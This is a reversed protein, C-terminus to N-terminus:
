KSCELSSGILIWLTCWQLWQNNRFLWLVLLFDGTVQCTAAQFKLTKSVILKNWKYNQYYILKKRIKDLKISLHSQIWWKNCEEHLPITQVYFSFKSTYREVWTHVNIFLFAARLGLNNLLANSFAVVFYM